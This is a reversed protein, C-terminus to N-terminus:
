SAVVSVQSVGYHQLHPVSNTMGRPESFEEAAASTPAFVSATTPAVVPPVVPRDAGLVFHASRALLMQLMQAFPFPYRGSGLRAVLM